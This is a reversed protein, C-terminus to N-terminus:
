LGHAYTAVNRALANRIIINLCNFVSVNRALANRICASESIFIVSGWLRCVSESFSGGLLVRSKCCCYDLYIVLMIILINRPVIHKIIHAQTRKDLWFIGAERPLNWLSFIIKRVKRSYKWCGFLWYLADLHVRIFESFSCILHFAYMWVIM